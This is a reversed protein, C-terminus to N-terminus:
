LHCDVLRISVSNHSEDRALIYPIIVIKDGKALYQRDRLLKEARLITTEPDDSFEIVFPAVGWYLNLQPTAGNTISNLSSGSVVIKRASFSKRSRCYRALPSLITIM